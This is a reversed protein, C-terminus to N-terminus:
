LKFFDVATQATKQWVEAVSVQKLEAVKQATFGVLAPHNQKGRWPEPSLYPCDTEIVMRDLPIMKVAEQVDVNAKYTVPGPISIIWGNDLIRRAFTYDKGFCHWLVPYDAFGEAELMEITDDESDRSHIVVPKKLERALDLQMKFARKQVDHPVKDWYYDLGIEGVAVLRRDSEFATRMKEIEGADFDLTHNPHEGLLFFVEPRNEFLGKNQEYQAHGLFVNGIKSVGSSHAQDFLEDLNEFDKLDIHAHSDIGGAPLGLTQPAPRNKKKKGM